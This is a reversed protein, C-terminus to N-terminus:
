ASAAEDGAAAAAAPEAPLAPPQQGTAAQLLSVIIDTNAEISQAAGVEALREQVWVFLPVPFDLIILRRGSAEWEDRHEYRNFGEEPESPANQKPAEGDPGPRPTDNEQQVLLDDLDAAEYGTGALSWESMDLDQLLAILATEDYSATDNTRNDALLIRRAKDDDVDVWLVPLETIGAQQAAQLRHNGALVRHTSRQVILAGYFGNTDVSDKIMAVNGRRPNDPHQQLQSISIMEYTQNLLM